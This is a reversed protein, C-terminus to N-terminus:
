LKPVFLIVYEIVNLHKKNINQHKHSYPTSYISVSCPVENAVVDVVDIISAMGNNSYSWACYWGNKLIQTIMEIFITDVNKNTKTFFESYFRERKTHVGKLRSKPPMKGKTILLPYDYNVLTELVHYYRSYEDRKYPADIYVLINKKKLSEIKQLANKWPGDYFIVNFKSNESEKGLSLLTAEFERWVSMKRQNLIKKVNKHKFKSKTDIIVAPQAFHAAHSSAVRSCTSILTGLAWQKDVDNWLMDIAYRLSDIQISQNIGFFINSYYETILIYPYMKPNAAREKLKVDHSLFSTRYSNISKCYKKATSETDDARLYYEEEAMLDYYENKMDNYHQIYHVKLEEILKQAKTKTYGGGQAISLYKPFQMADSAITDSFNCFVGAVAGSGTMLDVLTFDSLSLLGLSEIIFHRLKVKSGMYYASRAFKTKSSSNIQTKRFEFDIQYKKVVDYNNVGDAVLLNLMNKAKSYSEPTSIKNIIKDFNINKNAITKINCVESRLVYYIEKNDENKILPSLLHSTRFKNIDDRSFDCENEFINITDDLSVFLSNKIYLYSINNKNNPHQKSINIITGGRKEIFSNVKQVGVGKYFNVALPANIKLSNWIVSLTEDDNCLHFAYSSFIGNYFNKQIKLTEMDITELGRSAAIELMKNSIDVGTLIVNKIVNISLGTGCAFDLIKCNETSSAYKFINQFLFLINQKNNEIDIINDYEESFYDFFDHWFKRVHIEDSPPFILFSDMYKKCDIKLNRSLISFAENIPLSLEYIYINNFVSESKFYTVKNSIQIHTIMYSKNVQM